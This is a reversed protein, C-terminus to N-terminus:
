EVSNNPWSSWTPTGIEKMIFHQISVKFLLSIVFWHGIPHPTNLWASWNVLYFVNKESYKLVSFLLTCTSNQWNLWRGRCGEQHRQKWKARKQIWKQARKELRHLSRRGRALHGKGRNSGTCFGINSFLTWFLPLFFLIVTEGEEQNAGVPQEAEEEAQAFGEEGEWLGGTHLSINSM